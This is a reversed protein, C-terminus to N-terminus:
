EFFNAIHAASTDNTIIARCHAILDVVQEASLQDLRNAVKPQQSIKELEDLEETM